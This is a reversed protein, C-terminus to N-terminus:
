ARRRTSERIVAALADLLRRETPTCVCVLELGECEACSSPVVGHPCHAAAPQEDGATM